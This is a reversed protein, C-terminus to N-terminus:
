KTWTNDKPNKDPLRGDPDLMVGELSRGGLNLEVRLTRSGSFWVDVPYTVRVTRDDITQVTAGHGGLAAASVNGTGSLKLDLVIPSPMEGAQHVTVTANSGSTTVGQLSGDVRETTFLWYYWFWGLDRNLGRSM